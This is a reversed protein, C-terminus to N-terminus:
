PPIPVVEWKGNKCTLPTDSSFAQTKLGPKVFAWFREVSLPDDPLTTAFVDRNLVLIIRGDNMTPNPGTCGDPHALLGTALGSDAGYIMPGGPQAEGLEVPGIRSKLNGEALRWAEEVTLKAEKLQDESISKLM